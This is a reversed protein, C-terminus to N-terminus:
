GAPRNFLQLSIASTCWTRWQEETWGYDNVLTQYSTPSMLLMVLDVAQRLEAGPALGFRRHLHEVMASWAERRMLEAHSRIRAADPQYAASRVFDDLPATRSLVTGVNRILVDLADTLAEAALFEAYWPQREPPVQEGEGLVAYDYANQLLAAKTGFTFHLTQVAVGARAAIDAMTTEPYGRETFLEYAARIMRLRTQQAREARSMRSRKVDDM